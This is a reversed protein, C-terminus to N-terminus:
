EARLARMPDIRAARRAPLYVAWFAVLVFLCPAFLFTLPDFRGVEFLSTRLVRTTFAALVFGLCCGACSLLVGQQVFHRLVSSPAAGLAMRVGIERRRESVLYSIVGFLGISALLLACTAFALLLIVVFRRQSVSQEVLADLSTANYLPLDPDLSSVLRQVERSLSTHDGTARLVVASRGSAGSEVQFMSNYIMPRPDVDLAAIRVDAVVGIITFLKTGWQFREGLPNQRPLNQRVFTENVIAVPTSDRRDQWTFDRGKLLSIGMARFYGPSILSNDAWHSDGAAAHELHFGIQREDSLPLHSAIAAQAVGPLTALRALMQEQVAARRAPDPYRARTFLTRIVFTGQPNFGSPTRLVHIFSRVLLGTMISLVMAFGVEAIVVVRQFRQTRQTVGIQVADKLGTQTSVRSLRWAPTLGFLVATVLSLVFAFVFTVPHLQAERLRPVTEPGWIHFVRLIGAALLLGSLAGCLSIVLSETLCQRVLRIQSAGIACRVAMERSRQNSRALLLNGVNVCAILLVFAVACVLLNMLPRAKKVSYAAFRYVHPQVQLNGAYMDPHAREFAQAIQQIEAQAQSAGVNPRLRGILGVGFERVRNQPALREPSFAEPVWLNAKESLPAGDFPFRFSAPMVGVVTYPTEDLRLTHGLIRPDAGYQERWLAYSLVTVRAAGDRDDQETFVRGLMPAVGLLPFAAASIKAANIRSPRSEGTLNFGASEFMAVRSFVDNRQEYDQAEQASVGVEGVGERPLSETILVLREPDSYPLPHLLIADVLSFIATNAGIGLALTLIAAAAFGPSKLLLRGAYKVDGLINRQFTITTTKTWTFLTVDRSL